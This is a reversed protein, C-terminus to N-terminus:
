PLEYLLPTEFNESMSRMRTFEDKPPILKFGILEKQEDSLEKFIEIPTNQMYDIMM